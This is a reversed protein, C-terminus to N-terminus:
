TLPAHDLREEVVGDDLLGDIWYGSIRLHVVHHGHAHGQMEFTRAEADLSGDIGLNAAKFMGLNPPTQLNWKRVFLNGRVAGDEFILRGQWAYGPGGGNVFGNRVVAVGEEAKDYAVLQVWYMGDQM